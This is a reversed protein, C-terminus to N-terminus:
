CGKTTTNGTVASMVFDLMESTQILVQRHRKRLQGKAFAQAIDFSTQPSLRGFEVM